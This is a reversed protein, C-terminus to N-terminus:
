VKSYSFIKVVQGFQLQKNQPVSSTINSTLDGFLNETTSTSRDCLKGLDVPSSHFHKTQWNFPLSDDIAVADSPNLLPTKLDDDKGNVEM